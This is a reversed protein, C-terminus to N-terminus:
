TAIRIRLSAPKDHFFAHTKNFTLCGFVYMCLQIKLINIRKGHSCVQQVLSAEQDSLNKELLSKAVLASSLSDELHKMTSQNFIDLM